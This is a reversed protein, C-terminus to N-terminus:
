NEKRKACQSDREWYEDPINPKFVTGFSETRCGCSFLSGLPDVFLGDCICADVMKYEGNELARGYPLPDVRGTGISVGSTSEFRSKSFANFVKDSIKDHYQDQSLRVWIINERGLHALRLADETRSGNTVLGCGGRDVVSLGIGLYAWFDKHLTPEGGGITLTEDGLREILKTAAKFTRMNMDDGKATCSFCCHSCTMNCRTTIQVYM